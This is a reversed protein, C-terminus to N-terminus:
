QSPITKEQRKRFLFIALSVPSIIDIFMSPFLSLIFQIYLPELRTLKAFYNYVNGKNVKFDSYDEKQLGSKKEILSSIKKNNETINKRLLDTRTETKKTTNRYKFKDEISEISSSRNVLIKIEENFLKNENKLLEIQENIAIIQDKYFDTDKADTNIQQTEVFILQNYQGAVTSLISYITLFFWVLLIFYGIVIRKLKMFRARKYLGPNNTKIKLANKHITYAQKILGIASEFVINIFLVYTLALSASIIFPTGVYELWKFSYYISITIAVIGVILNIIDVIVSIVKNNM